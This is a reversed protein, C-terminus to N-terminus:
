GFKMKLNIELISNGFGGRERGYGTRTTKGEYVKIKCMQLVFIYSFFIYSFLLIKNDEKKFKRVKM